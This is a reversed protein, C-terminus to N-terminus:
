LVPEETRSIKWVPSRAALTRAALVHSLPAPEVTESWLRRQPGRVTVVGLFYHQRIAPRQEQIFQDIRGSPPTSLMWERGEEELALEKSWAM